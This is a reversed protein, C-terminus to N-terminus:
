EPQKFYYCESTLECQECKPNRPICIKQGFKVMLNNIEKWHKQPITKKLAPETEEPNKTKVLGLRNSIRHVHTDVPLADKGFAYVEVCAATKPGVGDLSLLLERSTPVKSDFKLILEKSIKKIRKAKVKYFGSPKILKEIENLPANALKELTSYKTFLNKTAKTTNEDRTRQSLVTAILVKFPDSDYVVADEESVSKLFGLIKDIKSVM